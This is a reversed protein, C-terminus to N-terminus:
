QKENDVSSALAEEVAALNRQTALTDPHEEGLVRRREELMAIVLAPKTAFAVQEPVHAQTRRAPDAAWAEPLYLRRNIFAHGAPGAYTLMPMVQCNEVQGTLGCYQRAVGASKVGKKIAATDDAILVGEGCGLHEIM